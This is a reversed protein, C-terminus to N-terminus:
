LILFSFCKVSTIWFYMRFSALVISLKDSTVLKVKSTSLNKYPPFDYKGTNLMYLFCMLSYELAPSFAWLAPFYIRCAWPGPKIRAGCPGGLVLDPTTGLWQLTHGWFQFGFFSFFLFIFLLLELQLYIIEM